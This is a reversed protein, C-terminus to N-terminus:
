DHTNHRKQYQQDCYIQNKAPQIFLVTASTLLDEDYSTEPSPEPPIATVTTHAHFAPRIAQELGSRQHVTAM